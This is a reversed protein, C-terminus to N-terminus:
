IQENACTATVVVASSLWGLFSFDLNEERELMFTVM